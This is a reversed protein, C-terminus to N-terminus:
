RLYGNGDIPPFREEGAVRQVLAYEHFVSNTGLTLGPIPAADLWPRDSWLKMFDGFTGNMDRRFYAQGNSLSFAYMVSCAEDLFLYRDEIACFRFGFAADPALANCLSGFRARIRELVPRPVICNSLHPWAQGMPSVSGSATRRLVQSTGIVYERGTVPFQWGGFGSETRYTFDCPYAILLDPNRDASALLRAVGDPKAIKRDYHIGFHTGDTLTMAQELAWEWHEGMPLEKPPRLYIAGLAECAERLERAAADSSSNDSVVICLADSADQAVLARVAAVALQPRNRTPLVFTLKTM